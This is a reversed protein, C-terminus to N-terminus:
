PNMCLKITECHLSGLVPTNCDAPLLGGGRSGAVEDFKVWAMCPSRGRIKAGFQEDEATVFKTM